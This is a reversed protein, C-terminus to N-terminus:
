CSLMKEGFSIIEDHIGVATLGNISHAKFLFVNGFTAGISDSHIVHFGDSVLYVWYVFSRATINHCVAKALSNFMEGSIISFAIFHHAPRPRVVGVLYRDSHNSQISLHSSSVNLKALVNSPLISPM